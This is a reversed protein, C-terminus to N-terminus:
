PVCQVRQASQVAGCDNNPGAIQTGGYLISRCVLNRILMEVVASGHVKDATRKTLTTLPSKRQLRGRVRWWAYSSNAHLFPFTEALELLPSIRPSAGYKPMWFFLHSTITLLRIAPPKREFGRTVEALMAIVLFM